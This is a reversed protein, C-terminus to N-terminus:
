LDEGDDFSVNLKPEKLGLKELIALEQAVIKLILAMKDRLEKNEASTDMEEARLGRIEKRLVKVDARLDKEQQYLFLYKEVFEQFHLNGMGMEELQGVLSERINKASFKAEAM